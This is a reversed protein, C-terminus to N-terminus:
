SETITVTEMTVQETPSDGSPGAVPTAAIADVVERGSTVQGFLSYNATGGVAQVLTEAGRDSTIIFFQSGNTDPGSNAMALSYAQYDGPEPLEDGFQYGPGGTGDPPDSPDGGQIVFDPVIRHFPVGDYFHYRALVVFNNVTVPAKAPDLTVTFEGDTTTFTATYTKSPDICMPPPQEFSTTREASGDAPPCPTEGTISAGPGPGALVAPQAGDAATTTTVATSDQTAVETDDNGGTLATIVTAVVLAGVVPLGITLIQRRRRDRAAQRRAEEARTRHLEKQRERKDTGV